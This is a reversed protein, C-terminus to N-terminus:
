PLDASQYDNLISFSIKIWRRVQCDPSINLRIKPLNTHFVDNMIRLTMNPSASKLSRKKDTM